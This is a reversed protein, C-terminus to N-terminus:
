GIEEFVYLGRENRARSIHIPGSGFGERPLAFDVIKPVLSADLLINAPKNAAHILPKASDATHM